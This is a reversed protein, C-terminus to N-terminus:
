QNSLKTLRVARPLTKPTGSKKGKQVISAVSSQPSKLAAPNRHLVDGNGHRWAQKQDRPATRQIAEDPKSESLTLTFGWRSLYTDKWVMDSYKSEGCM